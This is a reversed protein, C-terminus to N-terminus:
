VLYVLLERVLDESRSIGHRLITFSELLEQRVEFSYTEQNKQDLRIFSQGGGTWHLAASRGNVTMRSSGSAFEYKCFKYAGSGSGFIVISINSRVHSCFSSRPNFSM